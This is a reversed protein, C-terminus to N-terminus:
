KNEAVIEYGYPIRGSVISELHEVLLVNEMGSEQLDVLKKAAQERISEWTDKSIQTSFYIEQGLHLMKSFDILRLPGEFRTWHFVFEWMVAMGQFGNIGGQPTSNMVRATAIAGAAIAHVITGYSHVYDETLHRLFEPLEALTPRAEYWKKHIGMEEDIKEIM